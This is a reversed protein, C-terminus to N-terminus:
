LAPAHGHHACCAHAPTGGAIRASADAVHLVGLVVIVVGATRRVWPIRVIEGLRSAATGMAVLMPLTGLGFALMVLAGGLMSGTGLAVGLAGYVLGCPMFGWLSGLALAALASRVPLLRRAVPEIRRWIPAGMKEVFALRTSTGALFLGVALMLAGALLRLGLEANQFFPIRDVLSGVAGAFAGAISYSGIRGANYAGTMKLARLRARRANTELTVLGGSLVGVIGGCMVVCHTSGLLGMVLASACLAGIM